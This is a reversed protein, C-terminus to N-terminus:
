AIWLSASKFFLYPVIWVAPKVTRSAKEVLSGTYSIIEEIPSALFSVIRLLFKVTRSVIGVFPNATSTIVGVLPSANSTICSKCYTHRDRYFPKFYVLRGGPTYKRIALVPGFVTTDDVTSCNWRRNRFQYQCEGIGSRLPCAPANGCSQLLEM